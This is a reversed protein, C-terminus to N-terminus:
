HKAAIGRLLTNVLFADDWDLTADGTHVIVLRASPVVYVRQGGAGDFYAVDPALFPESHHARMSSAVTYRRQPTFQRGLWIQYGYNPNRQSSSLMEDVWAAPVIQRGDVAGRNMVLMGLRLWDRATAQLCCATHVLGGEHDAWLYAPSAGLPQWLRQSLYEAYSRGTAHELAVGLLESNIPNYDFEVDAPRVSQTQLLKPRRDSSLFLQLGSSFPNLSMRAQALGSTMQLLSRLHIAGRPDGSWEPIFRGLPEEVSHLFGDQLAIGYLLALVSKHMSQSDTLSNASYGRGYYELEIRGAHFVLLAVTPHAKGYDLAADLATAAILRESPAAGVLAPGAAGAVVVRPSYWDTATVIHKMPLTLRRRWFTPDVSVVILAAALCIGLALVSLKLGRM